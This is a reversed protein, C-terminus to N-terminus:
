YGMNIWDVFMLFLEVDNQNDEILLIELKRDGKTEMKEGAIHFLVNNRQGKRITGLNQWPTRLIIRKVLALGVGTGEIDPSPALRSFVEFVKEAYQM